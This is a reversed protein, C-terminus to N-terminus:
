LSCLQILLQFVNVNESPTLELASFVDKEAPFITETQREVVLLDQLKQFYPKEFEEALIQQWSNSISSITM